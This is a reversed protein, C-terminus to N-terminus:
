TVNIKRVIRSLLLPFFRKLYVATKEKSGGIVVEEKKQSIAQLVKKALDEPKLGKATADDMKNFKKGDGTLANKSVDTMVYGPCIITVDVNKTYLEARLSDFFGHLAHKSAAYTSRLPTGLKGMISSIVVIQGNQKEIFHPLLAKTIGITGFYNVDFIKQDVKFQTDVALSRQSVGGNNILIDIGNFYKLATITKEEFSSFDTLDLPLVKVNDSNKCLNKVEHLKQENRASLIINSGENSFALALAKGIGSSAGTIWITKNKLNM